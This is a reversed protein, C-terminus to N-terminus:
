VRGTPVTVPYDGELRQRLLPNSRDRELLQKPNPSFLLTVLFHLTKSVLDIKLDSNFKVTKSYFSNSSSPYVSNFCFGIFCFLKLKSQTFM